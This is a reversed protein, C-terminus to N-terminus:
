AGAARRQPIVPLSPRMVGHLTSEAVHALHESFIGRYSFEAIHDAWRIQLLWQEEREEARASTIENVPIALLAQFHADLAWIREAGVFFQVAAATSNEPQYRGGNVVVLAGLERAKDDVRIEPKAPPLLISGIFMALGVLSLLSSNWLGLPVIVLAAGDVGLLIRFVMWSNAKRRLDLVV